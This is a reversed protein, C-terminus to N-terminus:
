VTSLSRMFGPQRKQLLDAITTASLFHLLKQKHLKMKYHLPCPHDSHCEKLGLVCKDFQGSGNVIVLLDILPTALTRENISFGGSPGRSSNLIGEKVIKKMIKSLFHKPVSLQRAVEDVQIRKKSDSLVAIYLVGRLAYGFSKSFFM